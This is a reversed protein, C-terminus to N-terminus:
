ERLHKIKRNIARQMLTELEAMQGEFLGELEKAREKSLKSREQYYEKDEMLRKVADVWADVDDSCFIGAKGLSEQLGPTPSAM